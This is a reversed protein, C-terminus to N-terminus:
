HMAFLIAPTIEDRLAIQLKTDVEAQSVTATNFDNISWARQHSCCHCFLLVHCFLRDTLTQEHISYSVTNKCVQTHTTKTHYETAQCQATM